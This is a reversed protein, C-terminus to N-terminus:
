EVVLDKIRKAVERSEIRSHFGIGCMNFAEEFRMM